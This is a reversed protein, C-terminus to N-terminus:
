LLVEMVEVVIHPNLATIQHVELQSEAALLIVTQTRHWAELVVEPVVKLVVEPVVKLVVELVVELVVKPM